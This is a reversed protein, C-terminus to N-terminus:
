ATPLDPPQGAQQPRYSVLLVRHDRGCDSSGRLARERRWNLNLKDSTIHAERTTSVSLLSLSTDKGPALKHSNRM